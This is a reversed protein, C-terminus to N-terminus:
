GGAPTAFLAGSDTAYEALPVAAPGMAELSAASPRGEHAFALAIRLVFKTSIIQLVLYAISYSDIPRQAYASFGGFTCM